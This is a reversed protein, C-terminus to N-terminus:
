KFINNFNNKNEFYEILANIMKDKQTQTLDKLDNRGLMKNAKEASIKKLAERGEKSSLYELVKEKSLKYGKIRWELQSLSTLNKNFLDRKVFQNLFDAKNVMGSTIWKYEIYKSNDLAALDIYSNNNQSNVVVQEFKWKKGTFEKANQTIDQIIWQAAQSNQPNNDTLKSIISKFNEFEIPHKELAEGFNDLDDLINKFAGDELRSAKVKAM